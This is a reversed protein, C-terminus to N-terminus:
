EYRLAEIPNKNAAHWTHWSVALMATIYTLIGALIFVWWALDRAYSFNRTWQSMILFAVPCAIIFAISIWKSYDKSLLILIGEINAGNSKRIGIEKTRQEVSLSVLGLIGMCAILIAIVSFYGVLKAFRKDAKYQADFVSDQFYYEFPFGPSIEYWLKELGAMTNKLGNNRIKLNVFRYPYTNYYLLVPTITKHLSLYHFDRIVGIITGRSGNGAGTVFKGIPNGLQYEKVATENILYTGNYDGPFEESFNRGEVIEIGMIALYGPDVANIKYSNSRGDITVCCWNGWETGMYNASYSASQIGPIKLLEERFSEQQSLLTTNMPLYVIHERDFGLNVSNMYRIQNLILFTAIILVISIVLQFVIMGERLSSIGSLKLSKGKLVTVPKFSSLFLSPYLAAALGFSLFSMTLISLMKFTYLSRVPIIKGVVSYFLPKALEVLLFSLFLSAMVLLLTELVFQFVLERIGSGAVKRIGVEKSRSIGTATTLNIFNIAAIVMIFIVITILVYLTQRSGHLTMGEYQIPDSFYLRSLKTLNFRISEYGAASLIKNVEETLEEGTFGKKALIYTPYNWSDFMELIEAFGIKRLSGLTIVATFPLHFDAPDKIVGTVTFQYQNDLVVLEGVPNKNKFIKNAVSQTLVISNLRNIAEEPSGSIFEFNFIDFFTSDAYVMNKVSYPTNDWKVTYDAGRIRVVKEAIKSEQAILHGPLSPMVAWDTEMRFIRDRNTIFKDYRYEHQAYLVIFLTVAMGSSLGLLIIITHFKNRKFYRLASKLFLLFM